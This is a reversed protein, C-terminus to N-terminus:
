RLPPPQPLAQAGAPVQAAPPPEHLQSVSVMHGDPSRLVAVVAVETHQVAGDLRGGAMLLDPILAEIGAPVEFHLLPSYGASLLAEGDAHQVHLETGGGGGDLKVFGPLQAATVRLGLRGYWRTAAEVDRSMLVVRRLTAAM